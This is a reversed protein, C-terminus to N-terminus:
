AEQSRKELFQVVSPAYIRYYPKSSSGVNVGEILGEERWALVLRCGVNCAAAVESVAVFGRHSFQGRVRALMGPTPAAPMPLEGQGALREALRAMGAPTM